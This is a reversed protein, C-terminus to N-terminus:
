SGISISLAHKEVTMILSALRTYRDKRMKGKVAVVHKAMALQLFVLNIIDIKSTTQWKCYSNIDM